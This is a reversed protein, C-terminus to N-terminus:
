IGILPVANEASRGETSRRDWVLEFGARVEPDLNAALWGTVDTVSDDAFSRCCTRCVSVFRPTRNFLGTWPYGFNVLLMPQDCNLCIMSTARRWASKMAAWPIRNGEVGEWTFGSWTGPAPQWDDMQRECRSAWKGLYLALPFDPRSFRAM